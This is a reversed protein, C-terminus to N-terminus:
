EFDDERAPGTSEIVVTGHKTKKEIRQGLPVSAADRLGRKGVSRELESVDKGAQKAEEILKKKEEDTVPQM